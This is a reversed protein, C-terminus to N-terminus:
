CGRTAEGRKQLNSEEAIPRQLSERCSVSMVKGSIQYLSPFTICSFRSSRFQTKRVEACLDNSILEQLAPVAHHKERVVSIAVLFDTFTQKGETTDYCSKKLTEIDNRIHDPIGDELYRDLKALLRGAIFVAYGNIHSWAKDTVLVQSYLNPYWTQLKTFAWSMLKTTGKGEGQNGRVLM